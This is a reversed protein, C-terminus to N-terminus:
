DAELRGQGCRLYSDEISFRLGCWIACKCRVANPATCTDVIAYCGAPVHCLVRRLDGCPAPYDDICLKDNGFHAANAFCGSPPCAATPRMPSMPARHRLRSERCQGRVLALPLVWRAPLSGLVADFIHRTGALGGNKPALTIKSAPSERCQGRVLALPLVWRAPSGVCVARGGGERRSPRM